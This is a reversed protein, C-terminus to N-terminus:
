EGPGSNGKKQLADAADCTMKCEGTISLAMNLCAERREGKPQEGCVEDRAKDCQAYCLKLYDSQMLRSCGMSSILLGIVIVSGIAGLSTGETPISKGCYRCVLAEYKIFEACYPCKRESASQLSPLALLILIAIPGAVLGTLLGWNLPSRNKRKALIVAIIIFTPYLILLM